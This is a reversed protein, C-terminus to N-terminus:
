PWYNYPITEFNVHLYKYIVEFKILRKKEYMARYIQRGNKYFDFESQEENRMCRLRHWM